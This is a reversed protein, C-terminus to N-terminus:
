TERLRGFETESGAGRRVASEDGTSDANPHASPRLPLKGNPYGSEPQLEADDRLPVRKLKPM